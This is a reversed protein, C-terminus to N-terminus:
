DPSKFLARVDNLAERAQQRTHDFGLLAQLKRMYLLMAALLLAQTLVFVAFGIYVSQSYYYALLGIGACASLVFTIALPLLLLQLALIRKGAALTRSFELRALAQLNSVWASLLTLTAEAQALPTAEGDTDTDPDPNSFSERGRSQAAPDADDPRAGQEHKM